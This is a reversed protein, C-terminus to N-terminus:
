VPPLPKILAAESFIVARSNGNELLDRWWPPSGVVAHSDRRGDNDSVHIEVCRESGILEAVLTTEMVGTATAVINLHSLDLAFDLGSDLLWAYDAWSSLLWRDMPEPYLGELAVCRGWRDALSLVNARVAELTANAKRGAHLSYVSAGAARSLEDIRRWYAAAEPRDANSADWIQHPGAGTVRVSAHLRFQTGPSAAQCAELMPEDLATPHQPCLQMHHLDLMGWYPDPTVTALAVSQEHSAGPFAGSAPCVAFRRM